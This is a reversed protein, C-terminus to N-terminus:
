NSVRGSLTSDCTELLTGTASDFSFPTCVSTTTVTGSADAFRGTGGNITQVLTVTHVDLSPTGTSSFTGTVTDGNAAMTTFTGAGVVTGDIIRGAGDLHSTFAGVQTGVGSADATFAGTYLNVSTTGSSTAKVPLDTGTGALASGSDLIALALVVLSVVRLAKRRM